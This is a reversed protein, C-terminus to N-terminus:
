IALLAQDGLVKPGDRFLRLEEGRGLEQALISIDLRRLLEATIPRKDSWFIMSNLFDRAERSNLIEALFRTEAESGCPLYYATDDVMAPKGDDPPIVVFDLRKYLGSIAVKWPTFAYPGIGFMSFPPRNRYIRSRRREFKSKHSELYNWTRPSKTAIRTTDDGINQQTVIVYKSRRRNHAQSIDSSKYLRYVYSDEIDVMDGHGNRYANGRKILEMVSSCDHKIGSRWMYRRDRGRLNRTNRYTALDAIVAGDDYGMIADPESSGIYPHVECSAPHTPNGSYAIFLCADVDVNFHQKADIKYIMAKALPYNHKWARALVKRAVSTKCLMALMMDRERFREVFNLIIWESIDFNGKGTLANIGRENKFNSKIPINTGNAAAMATNTVWPPNGVILLPDAMDSLLQTWNVSFIDANHLAVKDAHARYQLASSCDAIHESNIDIGLLRNASSFTELAAILFTGKGCTPEIVTEPAFGHQRILRTVVRALPLPTQFDGYVKTASSNKRSTTTM